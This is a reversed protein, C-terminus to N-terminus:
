GYFGREVMHTVRTNWGHGDDTNDYTFKEDEGDIAVDLHNRTGNAYVEFNTADPRFRLIGGGM